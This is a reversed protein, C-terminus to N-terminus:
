RSVAYLYATLTYPNWAVPMNLIDGLMRFPVFMRGDQITPYVTEGLVNRIPTRHGNIYVYGYNARFDIRLGNADITASQTSGDRYVGFNLGYSVFRLPIMASSEESLWAPADLVVDSTHLYGVSNGNVFRTLRSIAYEGIPTGIIDIEFNDNQAFNYRDTDYLYATRTYSNWRVPMDLAYGLTRLPIFMRDDIVQATIRQGYANYMPVVRGNIYMRDSGDIFRINRGESDIVTSRNEEHWEVSLRLAQSIFRASVM